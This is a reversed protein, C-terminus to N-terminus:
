HAHTSDQTDFWTQLILQAAVADLHKKASKATKGTELLRTEADASTLREDVMDVPLSFRGKLQQAFRRCRATMDHETGDMHTPLGVVFGVPRWEDILRQIAAFRDDNAEGRVVTLPHAQSLLTEGVAVGIRRTGFDFCLITGSLKVLKECIEAL